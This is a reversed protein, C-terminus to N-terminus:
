GLRAERDRRAALRGHVQAALAGYSDYFPRLEEIPTCMPCSACLDFLVDNRLRAFAEPSHDLLGGFDSRGEVDLCCALLRGQASVVCHDFVHFECDMVGPVCRQNSHWPVAVQGAWSHKRELTEFILPLEPFAAQIEEARQRAIDNHFSIKLWGLGADVLRGVTDLPRRVNLNTSFGFALGREFSMRCMTVIDQHLLPEGFHHATVVDYAFPYDLAREFFALAMDEKARKMTPHPCYECKLTCRSTIEIQYIKM